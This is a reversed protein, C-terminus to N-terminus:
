GHNGQSNSNTATAPQKSAAIAEKFINMFTQLRQDNTSDGSTLELLDGKLKRVEIEQSELHHIRQQMHEVLQLFLGVVSEMMNIQIQDKRIAAAHLSAIMSEISGDPAPLGTMNAGDISDPFIKFHRTKVERDNSLWIAVFPIVKQKSEAWAETEELVGEALDGTGIKEIETASYEVVIEQHTLRQEVIRLTDASEPRRELWRTM